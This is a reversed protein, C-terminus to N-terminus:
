ILFVSVKKKAQSALMSGMATEWETLATLGLKERYEGYDLLELLETLTAVCIVFLSITRAPVERDM